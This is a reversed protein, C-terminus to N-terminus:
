RLPIAFHHSTIAMRRALYFRHADFRQVGSDLHLQDCGAERARESLWDFMAKGYNKSRSEGDTVLDDVYCIRGWALTEFVRYGAVSRAMGGVDLRALHYGAKSQRLVQAVFDSENLHPRLQAIVPYCGRIADKTEAVTITFDVADNLLHPPHLSDESNGCRFGKRSM